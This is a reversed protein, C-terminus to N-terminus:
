VVGVWLDTLRELFRHAWCGNPLNYLQLSCAAVRTYFRQWKADEAICIGDNLHSGNNQHITDGFIGLLRHDVDTIWQLQPDAERLEEKTYSCPMSHGCTDQVNGGAPDDKVAVVTGALIATAAGAADALDVTGGVAMGTDAAMCNTSNPYPNTVAPATVALIAAPVFMWAHADGCTGGACGDTCIAMGARAAPDAVAMQATETTSCLPSPMLTCKAVGEITGVAM